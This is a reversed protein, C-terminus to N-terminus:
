NLLLPLPDDQLEPIQEGYSQNLPTDLRPVKHPRNMESPEAIKKNRSNASEDNMTESFFPLQVHSTASEEIEDENTDTLLTNTDLNEPDSFVFSVRFKRERAERTRKKLIGKPKHANLLNGDNPETKAVTGSNSQLAGSTSPLEECFEPAPEGKIECKLNAFDVEDKMYKDVDFRFPEQGFNVRVKEGDEDKKKVLLSVMPYFFDDSLEYWGYGMYKGNKTFFIETRDDKKKPARNIGCGVVDFAQFPEAWKTGSIQNRCARQDSRYCMSAWESGLIVGLSAEKLGVGVAIRGDMGGGHLITVEFYYFPLNPPIPRDSRVAAAVCKEIKGNECFNEPGLFSAVYHGKDIIGLNFRRDNVNWCLPLDQIKITTGNCFKALQDSRNQLEQGTHVPKTGCEFRQIKTHDINEINKLEQAISYVFPQQGFNAKIVVRNEATKSVRKFGVKAHVRMSNLHAITKQRKNGGNKTFFVTKRIFDLGCGITDGQNFKFLQDENSNLEGDSCLGYTNWEQGVPTSNKSWEGGCGIYLLSDRGLEEIRVEFYYIKCTPPITHNTQAGGKTAKRKGFSDFTATLGDDTLKVGKTQSWWKTPLPDEEFNMWKYLNRQNIRCAQSEIKAAESIHDDAFLDPPQITAPVDISKSSCPQMEAPEMIQSKPVSIAFNTRGPGGCFNNPGSSMRQTINSVARAERETALFKDLNSVYRESKSQESSFIARIPTEMNTPTPVSERVASKTVSNETQKRAFNISDVNLAPSETGSTCQENSEIHSSAWEQGECLAEGNGQEETLPLSQSPVPKRLISKTPQLKLARIGREFIQKRSPRKASAKTCMQETRHIPRMTPILECYKYVREKDVVTDTETDFWISQRYPKKEPASVSQANGNFDTFRYDDQLKARKQVAAHIDSNERKTGSKATGTCPRKKGSANEKDSVVENKINTILSTKFKLKSLSKRRKYAGKSNNFLKSPQHSHEQRLQKASKMPLQSISEKPPDFVQESRAVRQHATKAYEFVDQWAFPEQGFNAHIEAGQEMLSIAPYSNGYNKVAVFPVDDDYEDSKIRKGNLTYFVIEQRCDWACGLIDGNQLGPGYPSGTPCNGLTNGTRGSYGLSTCSSGVMEAMNQCEVAHGVHINGNLGRNLITVEFYHFLSKENPPIPRDALITAPRPLASPCHNDKLQPRSNSERIAKSLEMHTTKFCNRLKEFHEQINFAFEEQGFNVKWAGESSIGLAPYIPCDVALDVKVTAVRGENTFFIEGRDFDVGCGVIQHSAAKFPFASLIKNGDHMVDGFHDFGYSDPQNGPFCKDDSWEHALGIVVSKNERNQDCREVRAEFYYYNYDPQIPHDTRVLFEAKKNNKANRRKSNFSVSLGDCGVEVEKHPYSLGYAEVERKVLRSPLPCEKKYMPYLDQLTQLRMQNQNMVPTQSTTSASTASDM